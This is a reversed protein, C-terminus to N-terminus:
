AVRNSSHWALLRREVSLFLANLGWGLLGTMVVLAYMADVAGSARALNIASGLGPMGVVLEAVVALILALSSSIRLGTAIFPAASPLVIFFFFGGRPIGYARATDRIVSDLDRIGYMSQFWLPWFAASVVLFIKTEIGIGLILIAVAVLAVGPVTRLFDAIGILARYILDFSGTLIGLPIALVAAVLLGLFWGTLSGAIATLSEGSIVLDVGAQLIQPLPPFSSAPLLQAIVALQYLTALLAVTGIQLLLRRPLGSRDRRPTGRDTAAEASEQVDAVRETM